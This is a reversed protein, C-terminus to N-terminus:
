PLVPKQSPDALAVAQLGRKALGLGDTWTLVLDGVMVCRRPDAYAGGCGQRLRRPSAFLVPGPLQKVVRDPGRM